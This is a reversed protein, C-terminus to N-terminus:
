GAALRPPEFSLVSPVTQPAAQRLLGFGIGAIGNMLGPTRLGEPVGCILGRDDITGAVANTLRRSLDGGREDGLLHSAEAMFELNGVEGHCLSLNRVTIADGDGSPDGGGYFRVVADHALRVDSLVTDGGDVAGHGGIAMRVIGIGPAGHCWATMMRSANGPRLDPWSGLRGDFLSDEHALAGRILEDCRGAGLVNSARLLALAIGSAGHAVGCLPTDSASSNWFVGRGSPVASEALREVCRSVLKEVPGTPLVAHVAALGVLSGAIGDVLDMDTTAEITEGLRPVVDGLMAGLTEPDGSLAAWHAAFYLGCDVAGSLGLAPIGASPAPHNAIRRARRAVGGAVQTAAETYRAIGTVAGLYMLFLAVGPTGSYVGPGTPALRWLETGAPSIGLWGLDDGTRLATDLLEDGIQRAQRLLTSRETAGDRDPVVSTPWSSALDQTKACAFASAIVWKQRELDSDSLGRIRDHVLDLGSAELAGDLVTGDGGLLTRGSVTSTFIPIDGRMLQRRESAAAAPGALFTDYRAFVRDLYMDRAAANRLLTPHYSDWLFSSYAQTADFIRRVTDPAFSALLGDPGLLTARERTLIRYMAEFGAVIDGAYEVPRTSQSGLSPVNQSGGMEMRRHVIRMTDSAPDLWTPIATATKQGPEFTIGSADSKAQRTDDLYIEPSPLLGTCLVTSLVLRRAVDDDTVKASDALLESGFLAELDVLYPYEGSAIVNEFHFDTARLAYLLALYGGQRRYFRSVQGEDTCSTAPVYESWGHDDVSYSDLVPFHPEFGAANAWRLLDQFHRDIRLSRPKYVIRTGGAFTVIGVSKGGRHGDGADFAVDDVAPVAPVALIERIADVDECLHTCFELMAAVWSDLLAQCERLLVPYTKWIRLARPADFSWSVFDQYRQAGSDGRLEGRVRAINLELILVRLLLRTMAKRPWTRELADSLATADLGHGSGDVIGHVGDRLRRIAPGMMPRVFNLLEAAPRGGKGLYQWGNADDADRDGVVRIRTLAQIWEPPAEFRAKAEEAGEQSVRAFEAASIGHHRLIDQFLGDDERYPFRDRIKTLQHDWQGASGETEVGSMTAATAAAAREGIRTALYWEPDEASFYADGAEGARVDAM